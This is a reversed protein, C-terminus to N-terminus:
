YIHKEFNMIFLLREEETFFRLTSFKKDYDMYCECDKRYEIIEKWIDSMGYQTKLWYPRYAYKRTELIM